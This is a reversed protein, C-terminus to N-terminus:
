SPAEEVPPRLQDLPWNSGPFEALADALRGDWAPDGAPVGVAQEIASPVHAGFLIIRAHREDRRAAVDWRRVADLQQTCTSRTVQGTFLVLALLKARWRGEPGVAM